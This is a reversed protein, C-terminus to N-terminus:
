EGMDLAIEPQPEIPTAPEAAPREEYSPLLVLVLLAAALAVGAGTLAALTMGHLFAQDASRALAQGAPGGLQQAVQLAGGVSDHALGAAQPPLQGLAGSVSSGFGTSLVSGMVAVGLAGGLERTTDNMASGVGAHERPVAGMVSDTAPTIALGMGLGGLSMALAVLGYGSSLSARAFSAIGAALLLLGLAVVRKSGFRQALPASVPATLAIGAAIPLMRVGAQFTSYRLVFQLYQTLFFTTGFLGFYVLMLSLSAATFRMQEFLQLRLMPHDCAREWLAFGALLAVGLAMTVLTPASTWGKGPAEIIGYLLTTLGAVSLLAGPWDVRLPRPDRSEPVLFFGAVLALAM